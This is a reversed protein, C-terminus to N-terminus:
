KVTPHWPAPIVGLMTLLIAPSWYLAVVAVSLQQRVYLLGGLVLFPLVFVLWIAVARQSEEDM